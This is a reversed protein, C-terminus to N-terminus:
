THYCQMEIGLIIRFGPGTLRPLTDAFDFVTIDTRHSQQGPQLDPETDRGLFLGLILNQGSIRLRRLLGCFPPRVNEKGPGKLERRKSRGLFQQSPAVFEDKGSPLDICRDGLPKSGSRFGDKVAKALHFAYKGGAEPRRRVAPPDEQGGQFLLRGQVSEGHLDMGRFVMHVRDM